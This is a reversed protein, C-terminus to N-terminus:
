KIINKAESVYQDRFRLVKEVYSQTSKPLFPAVQSFATADRGLEQVRQQARAVRGQGANFAAVAFKEVEEPSKGGISFLNGKIKTPNSFMETLSRLYSLGLNTNMSPDFPEYDEQINLATVLDQATSDLLQFVGKSYHGDASVANHDFSSEARAVALGLSPEVGHYEGAVRIIDKIEQRSYERVPVVRREVPVASFLQPKAPPELVIEEETSVIAPSPISPKDVKVSPVSEEAKSVEPTPSVVQPMTQLRARASSSWEEDVMNTITDSQQTAQVDDLIDQFSEPLKDSPASSPTELRKPSYDLRSVVSAYSGLFISSM